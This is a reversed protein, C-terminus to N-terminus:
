LAVIDEGMSRFGSVFKPPMIIMSELLNHMLDKSLLTLLFPFSETFPLRGRLVVSADSESLISKFHSTKSTRAFFIKLHTHKTKM